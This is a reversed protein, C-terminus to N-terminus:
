SICLSPTRLSVSDPLSPPSSHELAWCTLLILISHTLVPLSFSLSMFTLQMLGGGGFVEKDGTSTHQRINSLLGYLISEVVQLGPFLRSAVGQVVVFCFCPSVCLHRPSSNNLRKGTSWRKGVLNIGWQRSYNMLHASRTAFCSAETWVKVFVRYSSMPEKNCRRDPISICASLSNPWILGGCRRWPLM